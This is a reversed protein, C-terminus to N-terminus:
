ALGLRKQAEEYSLLYLHLQTSDGAVARTWDLSRIQDDDVIISSGKSNKKPAQLCDEVIQVLNSVNPSTKKRIGTKAFYDEKKFEFIVILWLDESLIETQSMQRKALILRNILVNEACYAEDSKGIFNKKTKWNRKITKGRGNKKVFHSPMPFSAKFKILDDLHFNKLASDISSKYDVFVMM